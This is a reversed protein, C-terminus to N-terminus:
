FGIGYPCRWRAARGESFLYNASCNHIAVKDIDAHAVLPQFGKIPFGAHFFPRELIRAVTDITRRYNGVPNQIKARKIVIEISEIGRSAVKEALEIETARNARSRQNVALREVDAGP